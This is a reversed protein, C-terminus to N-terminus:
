EQGHEAEKAPIALLIETGAGPFSRINLKAGLIHAREEIVVLGLGAGSEKKENLNFGEGDDKISLHFYGKRQTLRIGVNKAHAHKIINMLAEQIIRYVIVGKQGFDMKKLNGHTFTIALDRSRMSGVLEQVCPGLGIYKLRMPSLQHSLNRSEEIIHDIRSRLEDLFKNLEPYKAALDVTNHVLYIKLAALLQGLNDHVEESIRLREEEQALLIKKPVLKIAQEMQKRFTIDHRIAVYQHPKRKDNLIPLILTDVWHLTGDKACNRVEGRWIRGTTITQWMNRFFKKPHYHSNIIRHDQGILAKRSYKYVKCFKDNAFIIRGKADTVTIMAAENLLSTPSAFDEPLKFHKIKQLLTKM